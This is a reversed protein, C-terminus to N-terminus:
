LQDSIVPISLFQTKAYAVFYKFFFFLFVKTQTDFIGLYFPQKKQKNKLSVTNSYSIHPKVDNLKNKENEELESAALLAFMVFDEYESCCYLEERSLQLQQELTPFPKM